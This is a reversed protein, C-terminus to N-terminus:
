RELEYKAEVSLSLVPPISQMHYLETSGRRGDVSVVTDILRGLKYGAAVAQVEAKRKASALATQLAQQLKTPTDPDRFDPGFIRLSRLSELGSLISKVRNEARLMVELDNSAKYGLTSLQDYITLSPIEIISRTVILPNIKIDSLNVGQQQLLKVVDDTKARAKKTADVEIKDGESVFIQLTGHDPPAGRITIDGIASVVPRLETAPGAGAILMSAAVASALILLRLM